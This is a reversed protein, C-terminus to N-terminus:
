KVKNLAKQLRANNLENGIVDYGYKDLIKLYYGIGVFMELVTKFQDKFLDCVYHLGKLGHLNELASFDKIPANNLTVCIVCNLMPKNGSNYTKEYYQVDTVNSKSKLKDILSQAQHVGYVIFAYNRVYSTILHVVRDELQTQDILDIDRNTMKKNMTKWYKLNGSGWPPDTYCFDVGTPYHQQIHQDIDTDNINSQIIKHRM